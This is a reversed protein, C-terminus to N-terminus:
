LSAGPTVVSQLRFQGPEQNRTGNESLQTKQLWSVEVAVLLTTGSTNFKGTDLRRASVACSYAVSGVSRTSIRPAEGLQAAIESYPRSKWEDLVTEGIQSAAVVHESKAQVSFNSVLLGIVSMAAVSYMGM